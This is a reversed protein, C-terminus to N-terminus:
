LISRVTHGKATATSSARTMERAETRQCVRRAARVLGASASFFSYVGPRLRAHRSSDDQVFHLINSIIKFLFLKVCHLIEYCYESAVSHRHHHIEDPQHQRKRREDHQQGLHFMLHIEVPVIRSGSPYVAHILDPYAIVVDETVYHWSAISIVDDARRRVDDCAADVTGEHSLRHEVGDHVILAYRKGELSFGIDYIRIEELYEPDLDDLAACIRQIVQRLYGNRLRQCSFKITVFRGYAPYHGMIFSILESCSPCFLEAYSRNVLVERLVGLRFVLYIQIDPGQM